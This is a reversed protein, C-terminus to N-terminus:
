AVTLFNMIRKLTLEQQVDCKDSTDTKLTM